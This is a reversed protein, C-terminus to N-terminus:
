LIDIFISWMSIKIKRGMSVETVRTHHLLIPIWIKQLSQNTEQKGHQSANICTFPYQTPLLDFPLEKTILELFNSLQNPVHLLWCIYFGAVVQASVDRVDPELARGSVRVLFIIAPLSKIKKLVLRFLLCKALIGTRLINLNHNQKETIESLGSFLQFM